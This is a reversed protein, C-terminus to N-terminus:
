SEALITIRARRPAPQPAPAAAGESTVALHDYTTSRQVLRRGLPEVLARFEDATMAQGHQAGAARSINENMLTGGLDNVGAHLLQRVGAVGIKVWSAQINDITGHYAIRGAGARSGAHVVM